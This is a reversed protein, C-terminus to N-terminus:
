ILGIEKARHFPIQSGKKHILRRTVLGPTIEREEYYDEEVLFTLNQDLTSNTDYGFIKKPPASDGICDGTPHGCVPCPGRTASTVRVKGDLMSYSDQKQFGPGDYFATM